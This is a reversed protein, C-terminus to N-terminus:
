IQDYDPTKESTRKVGENILSDIQQIISTIINIKEEKDAAQKASELSTLMSHYYRSLFSWASRKNYDLEMRQVYILHSNPDFPNILMKCLIFGLICKDTLNITKHIIQEKSGQGKISEKLESLKSRAFSSVHDVDPSNSPFLKLSHSIFFKKKVSLKLYLFSRYLFHSFGIFAFGSYFILTRMASSESHFQLVPDIDDPQRRLASAIAPAHHSKNRGVGVFAGRACAVGTRTDCARAKRSGQPGAEMNPPRMALYSEGKVNRKGSKLPALSAESYPGLVKIFQERSQPQALAGVLGRLADARRAPSPEQAIIALLEDVKAALLHEMGSGVFAWVPFAAASIQHNPETHTTAAQFAEEVIELKEINDPLEECCLVVGSLPVM